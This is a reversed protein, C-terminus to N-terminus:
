EFSVSGDETAPAPWVSPEPVPEVGLCAVLEPLSFAWVVAMAQEVPVEATRALLVTLFAMCSRWGAMPSAGAWADSGLQEAVLVLDAASVDSERWEAGNWRLVWRDAM